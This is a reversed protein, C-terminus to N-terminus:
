PYHSKVAEVKDRRIDALRRSANDKVQCSKDLISNAKDILLPFVTIQGAMFTLSPYKMRGTDTRANHLFAVINSITQLSNM